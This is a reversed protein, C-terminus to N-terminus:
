MNFISEAIEKGDGSSTGGRVFSDVDMFDSEFLLSHHSSHYKQKSPEPVILNNDIYVSPLVPNKTRTFLDSMMKSPGKFGTASPASAAMSPTAVPNGEIPCDMELSPAGVLSQPTREPLTLHQTVKSLVENTVSASLFSPTAPATSSLSVDCDGGDGGGGGSGSRFGDGSEQDVGSIAMPSDNMMESLLTDLDGNISLDEVGHGAQPNGLPNKLDSGFRVPKEQLLDQRENVIRVFGFTSDHMLLIGGSENVSGDAVTAVDLAEDKVAVTDPDIKAVGVSSKFEEPIISPPGVERKIDGVNREIVREEVSERKVFQGDQCVVMTAPKEDEDEEMKVENLFNSPVERADFMSSSTPSPLGQRFTSPSSVHRWRQRRTTSSTMGGASPISSRPSNTIMMSPQQQQRHLAHEAASSTLALLPPPQPTQSSSPSLQKPSMQTSSTGAAAAKQQQQLLEAAHTKKEHRMRHDKRGFRHSCFSCQFERNGTHVVDHRKLDKSTPFRKSCQQCQFRKEGQDKHVRKSPTTLSNPPPSSASAASSDSEHSKRHKQLGAHTSFSRGCDPKECDFVDGGGKEPTNHTKCHRNLQNKSGFNKGCTNCELDQQQGAFKFFVNQRLREPRTAPLLEDGDGVCNTLKNADSQLSGILVSQEGKDEPLDLSVQHVLITILVDHCSIM